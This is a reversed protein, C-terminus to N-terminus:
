AHLGHQDEEDVDGPGKTVVSTRAPSGYSRLDLPFASNKSDLGADPQVPAEVLAGVAVLTVDEPDPPRQVALGALEHDGDALGGLLLVAEADPVLDLALADGDGVRPELQGVEVLGAAELQERSPRLGGAIRRGEEADRRDEIDIALAAV